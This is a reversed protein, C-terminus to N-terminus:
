EKESLVYIAAHSNTRCINGEDDRLYDVEKRDRLYKAIGRGVASRLAPRGISRFSELDLLTFVTGEANNMIYQDIESIVMGLTTKYDNEEDKIGFYDKLIQDALDRPLVNRQTAEKELKDSLEPSMYLQLRM